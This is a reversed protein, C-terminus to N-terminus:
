YSGTAVLVVNATYIGAPTTNSAQAAFTLQNGVNNVPASSSAIPDGYTGLVNIGNASTTDMGYHTSTGDNYNADASITGTGGTGAAVFLGFAAVGAGIAAPSSGGSNVAPISNTGANLGGSAALNRMRIIAGTQANTSLQTFVSATDVQTSDLITNGGHGLNITPTTVAQGTQVCNPGPALASVCFIMSEQVKATISIVNATSLAFGGYDTASTSGESGAAYNAYDSGATTAGTYTIIRAYFTGTTSPNTVSTIAFDYTNSTSLAVGSSTMKLTRGSNASTPTWTGGLDTLGTIGPATNVTPTGVTFSTPKNCTSDGIIPTSSGDCFDVIIGTATHATGPKFSVLYTASVGPQSTSLRISRTQVQGGVPFAHAKRSSLMPVLGAVAVIAAIIAYTTRSLRYRKTKM